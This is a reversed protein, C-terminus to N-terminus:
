ITTALGLESRKMLKWEAGLYKIRNNISKDATILSLMATPLCRTNNFMSEVYENPRIRYGIVIPDMNYGRLEMLSTARVIAPATILTLGGLILGRRNMEM